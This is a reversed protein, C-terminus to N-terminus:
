CCCSIFVNDQTTLMSYFQCCCDVVMIFHYTILLYEGIEKVSALDTLNTNIMVSDTDGYIVDLQM